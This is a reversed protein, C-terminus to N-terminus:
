RWRGPRRLQLLDDVVDDGAAVAGDATQGGAGQIGTDGGDGQELLVGGVAVASRGKGEGAVPELETHDAGSVGDGCALVARFVTRPRLWEAISGVSQFACVIEFGGAASVDLFGQGLMLPDDEVTVAVGVLPYFFSGAAAQGVHLLMTSAM